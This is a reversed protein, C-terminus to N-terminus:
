RTSMSGRQGHTAFGQPFGWAQDNMSNRKLTAVRAGNVGSNFKKLHYTGLSENSYSKSQQLMMRGLLGDLIVTGYVSLVWDPVIPLDKKDNPLTVNKAVTVTYNQATSPARIVLTSFDPLAAVQPINRADVVGLLRIIQGDFAPVLDYTTQTAFVSVTIDELWASSVSFFENFVDFLEGKIGADSAGPLKVRAQDLLRNWEPNM